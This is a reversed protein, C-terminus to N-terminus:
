RLYLSLNKYIFTLLYALHATKDTCPYVVAIYPVVTESVAEELSMVLHISIKWDPLVIMM